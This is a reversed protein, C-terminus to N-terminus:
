KTSWVVKVTDGVQDANVYGVTNPNDAVLRLMDEESMAVKPPVGGGTFILRSWYSRVQSDSKGTSQLYFEDRVPIDNPMDLPIASRGDPFQKLKGLFILSVQNTTLASTPNDKSVVVVVEAYALNLAMMMILPCVLSIIRKM